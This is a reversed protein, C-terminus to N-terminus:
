YYFGIGADFQDVGSNADNWNWTYNAKIAIQPIPKYTLGATVLRKDNAQNKAFGAPIKYQTDIDEFRGFAILDHKTEPWLHYFLHYGAELYYGLMQSGVFNTGGGGAIVTNVNGADSLSNFGFIGELDIGELSYKADAEIMALFAGGVGAQGHATNGLFASTGMRFGPFYTNQLRFSGGVDRGPAEVVKFRGGRIGTSGSFGQDFTGTGDLTVAKPTSMLYLQYDFGHSLNGYFGIGAEMWSTPIIVSYFTPREVGNFLPPEHHQNIVGMPVLLSGVRLTAWDNLGFDIHAFELEPEKFAHEFDLEAEFKIKETFDFGLGIVFRHFDFEDASSGIPNNYHLEGYGFLHVRGFDGIRKLGDAHTSEALAESAVQIEPGDNSSTAWSIKSICVSSLMGFVIFPLFRHRLMMVLDGKM